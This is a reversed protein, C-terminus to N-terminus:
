ESGGESALVLELKPSEQFYRLSFFFAHAAPVPPPHPTIGSWLALSAGDVGHLHSCPPTGVPKHASFILYCCTFPKAPLGVYNVKCGAM